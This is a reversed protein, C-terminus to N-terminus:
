RQGIAQCDRSTERIGYKPLERERPSNQGVRSDWCPAAIEAGIQGIRYLPTIKGLAQRKWLFLVPRGKAGLNSGTWNFITQPKHYFAYNHSRRMSVRLGNVTSM